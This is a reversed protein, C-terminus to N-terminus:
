KVERLLAGPKSSQCNDQWLGMANDLNCGFSIKVFLLLDKIAIWVKLMVRYLLPSSFPPSRWCIATYTLETYLWPWDNMNLLVM